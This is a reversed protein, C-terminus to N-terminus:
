RRRLVVATVRGTWTPYADLDTEQPSTTFSAVQEYGPCDHFFWLEKWPESTPAKHVDRYTADVIYPPRADGDPCSSAEHESVSGGPGLVLDRVGPFGAPAPKGFVSPTVAIDGSGQPTEHASIWAFARIRPDQELRQAEVADSIPWGVLAALAVVALGVSPFRRGRLVREIAVAGGGFGMCLAPIVVLYNRYLFTRNPLAVSLVLCVAYAAAVVMARSGRRAEALFGGLAVTTVALSVAVRRSPFHSAIAALASTLHPLGPTRLYVLSVGGDRTQKYRGVLDRMADHTRDIVHPNLLVYIAAMAPITALLLLLHARRSRLPGTGRLWTWGIAGLPVLMTVMGPMKFACTVGAAAMTAAGWALKRRELYLAAFALTWATLAALSADTVAYRAHIVLQSAVAYLLAAWIGRRHASGRGSRAFRAAVYVALTGTAAVLAGAIRSALYIGSQKDLETLEGSQHHLKRLVAFTLEGLWMLPEGYQYSGPVTDHRRLMGAVSDTIWGEDWHHHYPLGFSIGAFRLLAGLLVVAAVLVWRM